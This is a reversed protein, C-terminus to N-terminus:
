LISVRNASRHVEQGHFFFFFFFVVFELCVFVECKGVFIIEWFRCGRGMVSKGYCLNFFSFVLCLIVVFGDYVLIGKLRLGVARKNQGQGQM